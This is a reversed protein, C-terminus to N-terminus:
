GGVGANSSESSCGSVSMIMAAAMFASIMKRKIKM